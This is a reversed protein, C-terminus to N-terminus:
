EPAEPAAPSPAEDTRRSDGFREHFGGRKKAYVKRAHADLHNWARALAEEPAEGDKVRTKMTFPGLRFSQYPAPSFVEEGWTVTVIEVPEDM